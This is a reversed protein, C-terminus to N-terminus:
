GSSADAPPPAARRATPDEALLEDALPEGTVEDTWYTGDELRELAQEVGALDEALEDLSSTAASEDGIPLEPDTPTSM